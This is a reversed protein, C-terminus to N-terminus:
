DRKMVEGYIKPRTYRDILPVILNMLLISYTVGEPYGGFKRITFTLVGCGIGFIIRGKPTIPSTVMDTAMFIAGLLLGGALVHYTPTILSASNFFSGSGNSLWFLIFVTGIYSLPIRIDIIRKWVLILGGLLLAIASTEGICGGVNGISLSRLASSFLQPDFNGALFADKINSLPTAGSVGDIGSISGFFPANFNTMAAPYSAVLFARGALAPNIFNSGLGGFALKALAIAFVSGIVATWWPLTAPFNLALLLGTLVASYDKITCPRKFYKNIFWETGVASGVSVVTLMISRWGFFIVSSVFAPMLALIVWKMIEPVAMPQRIHPSTSLHLLMKEDVQPSISQQNQNSTTTKPVTTM